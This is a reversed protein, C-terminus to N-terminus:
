PHCASPATPTQRSRFNHAECANMLGTAVVESQEPVMETPNCGSSAPQDCGPPNRYLSAM